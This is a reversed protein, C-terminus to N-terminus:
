LRRIYHAFTISQPSYPQPPTAYLQSPFAHFGWSLRSYDSYKDAVVSQGYAKMQILLDVDDNSLHNIREISVTRPIVLLHLKSKPYKDHFVVFQDNRAVFGDFETPDHMYQHLGLRRAEDPNTPFSEQVFWGDYKGKKTKSPTPQVKAPDNTSDM